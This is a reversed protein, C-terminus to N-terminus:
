CSTIVAFLPCQGQYNLQSTALYGKAVELFIRVNKGFIMKNKIVPCLGFGRVVPYVALFVFVYNRHSFLPQSKLIVTPWQRSHYVAM